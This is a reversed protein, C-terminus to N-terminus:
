ITQTKHRLSPLLAILYGVGAVGLVTWLVDTAKLVVPYASVLYNGPMKIFGFRQQLLVFGIGAVLGIALGLLSIFWGELVFIRRVLTDTAGLSRLTEIDHEKEIILMSLSSFINFAIVIIIFILILYIALKEYRMMKYLAENQRFRDKVEFGDGLRDSLGQIIRATEKEPTGAAVRVEVGTVEQEYELLERMVEIPVVVLEGDYNANISFLGAPSVKRSRVAHMPDSLSIKGTRTPYYLEMPAVFRPRIGMGLALGTGVVAQPLDGKHLSFQGERIHDRLPSTHEYVSDVGKARALGQRGDYALFVSEELTNCVSAVSPQSQLWAISASDPLFVKGTSPTVLVDPEIDSLTNQVLRNFGNFVSLTIILAATGTAMGAVSIGSIINIVNHSKRAFLYRGAFLLPLRM